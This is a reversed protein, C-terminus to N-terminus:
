ESAHVVDLGVIAGCEGGPLMARWLLSSLQGSHIAALHPAVPMYERSFRAPSSSRPPSSCGRLPTSAPKASLSSFPPPFQVVSVVASPCEELFVCRPSAAIAQPCTPFRGPCASLRTSRSIDAPHFLSPMTGHLNSLPIRPFSVFHPQEFREHQRRFQGAEVCNSWKQACTEQASLVCVLRRLRSRSGNIRSRPRHVALEDSLTYVMRPSTSSGWKADLFSARDTRTWKISSVPRFFVGSESASTLQLHLIQSLQKSRAAHRM